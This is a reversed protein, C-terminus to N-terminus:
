ATCPGEAIAAEIEEADPEEGWWIGYSAAAQYVLLRWGDEYQGGRQETTRRIVPDTPSYVWDLVQTGPGVIPGLPIALDIPPDRGATTAHVVLPFPRAENPSLVAAG